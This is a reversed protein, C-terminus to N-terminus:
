ANARVGHGYAIMAGAVDILEGDSVWAYVTGLLRDFSERDLKTEIFVKTGPPILGNLADRAAAGADRDDGSFLEPANYGLLRIRRTVYVHCGLSLAVEITDGDVIRRVEATYHYLAKTFDSVSATM